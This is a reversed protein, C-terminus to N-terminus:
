TAPGATVSGEPRRLAEANRGLREGIAYHACIALEHERLLPRRADVMPAARLTERDDAVWVRGAAAACNRVPVAVSKPRRRGLAVVLWAPEGSQTDTFVARVRGVRAGGADDVDLGIWGM